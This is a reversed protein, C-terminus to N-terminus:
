KKMAGDVGWIDEDECNWVNIDPGSVHEMGVIPEDTNLDIEINDPTGKTVTYQYVDAEGSRAMSITRTGNEYGDIYEGQRTEVAGGDYSIYNKNIGEGNPYDEKWTGKFWMVNLGHGFHELYFSGEGVRKGDEMEGVYVYGGPYVAIWIGDEQQWMLPETLNETLASFEKGLISTNGFGDTGFSEPDGAMKEKLQKLLDMYETELTNKASLTNAVARIREYAAKREETQEEKPLEEYVSVAKNLTELAQKEDGQSVYADALKEYASIERPELEIAKSFAVVAEEYNLELLYKDGLDLYEQFNLKKKCGALLVLSLIVLVMCALKLKKIMNKM